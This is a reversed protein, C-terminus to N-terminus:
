VDWPWPETRKLHCHLINHVEQKTSPMMKAYHGSIPLTFPYVSLSENSTLM